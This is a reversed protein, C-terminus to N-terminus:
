IDSSLFPATGGPEPSAFCLVHYILPLYLILGLRTTRLTHPSTFSFTSLISKISTNIYQSQEMAQM